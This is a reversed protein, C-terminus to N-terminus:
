ITTYLSEDCVGDGSAGVEQGRVESCDVEAKLGSGVVPPNVVNIEQCFHSNAEKNNRKDGLPHTEM